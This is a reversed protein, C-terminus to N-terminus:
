QRGKEALFQRLRIKAEPPMPVDTARRLLEPLAMCARVTAACEACSAVHRQVEAGEEFPLAGDLHDPLLELCRECNVGPLIGRQM